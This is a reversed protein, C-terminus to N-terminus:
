GACSTRWPSASTPFGNQIALGRSNSCNRRTLRGAVSFLREGTARKGELVIRCATANPEVRLNKRRRAPKLYAQGTSARQGRRITAQHPGIGDQKGSNIDENYPVGIEVGAKVIADCLVGQEEIDSVDLPGGVGHIESAGRENNESKKFYPLVDEYSWGSCGMQAWTDYDQPQGRVYVMGNISSSGGIM